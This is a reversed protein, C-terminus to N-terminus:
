VGDLLNLVTKLNLTRQSTDFLSDYDGGQFQANPDIAGGYVNNMMVKGTSSNFLFTNESTDSEVDINNLRKKNTRKKKKRSGNRGIHKRSAKRRKSSKPPPKRGTSKRATQKTRAM